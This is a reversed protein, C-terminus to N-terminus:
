GDTKLSFRPKLGSKQCNHIIIKREFFIAFCESMIFLFTSVSIRTITVAVDVFVIACFM